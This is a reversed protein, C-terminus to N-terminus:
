IRAAILNFICFIQRFEPDTNCGKQFEDLTLKEDKDRDMKSFLEEVRKHPNSPLSDRVDQSLAGYIASVVRGLEKKEIVGDKNTDLFHFSARFWDTDKKDYPVIMFTTLIFEKFSIKGNKDRDFFDFLLDTLHSFEDSLPVLRRFSRRDIHGQPSETMFETHWNKVTDSTLHTHRVMEDLDARTIKSSEHGM